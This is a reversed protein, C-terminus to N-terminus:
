NRYWAGLKETRRCSRSGILPVSAERISYSSVAAPGRNCCRVHQRYDLLHDAIRAWPKDGGSAIQEKPVLFEYKPEDKLRQKTYREFSKM